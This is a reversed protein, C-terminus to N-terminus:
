PPALPFSAARPPLPAYPRMSPMPFTLPFPPASIGGSCDLNKEAIRRQLALADADPQRAPDVRYREQVDKMAQLALFFIRKAGDMDVMPEARVGVFPGAEAAPEAPLPPYRERNVAYFNCLRSSTEFSRRAVRAILNEPFSRRIEHRERMVQVVLGLRDQHVQQAAGPQAARAAHRRTRREAPFPQQAREKFDRPFVDHGVGARM